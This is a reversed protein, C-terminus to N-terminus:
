GRLGALSRKQRSATARRFTFGRECCVTYRYRVTRPRLTEEVSSCDIERVLVFLVVRQHVSAKEPRHYPLRRRLLNKQRRIKIKIRKRGYKMSTIDSLNGRRIMSNVNRGVSVGEGWVVRV